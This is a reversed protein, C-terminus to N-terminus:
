KNEVVLFDKGLPNIGQYIIDFFEPGYELYYESFNEIREQLSNNPFLTAKLRAIRDLHVKMKKKEARLMKQEMQHLQYSVKALVAGAAEKLTPDLTVAKNKLREIIQELEKKEETTDWEDTSNATIYERELQLIPKFIDAITFALQQRLKGQPAPIWLASQRLLIQPYFVKYHQFVTKLQLWYAVEAGGGIFTVNPLITDQYLGRLMVNPSFREPHEKLEKLIEERTWRIDTDVVTWVDGNKEIRERLGDNLYFLNISRPHAQIKYNAGLAEIQAAIIPQAHQNLLEDQMVASFSSKLSADDPDLVILGFRGFLEHVFYQTAAGITKHNFYAETAIRQLEDLNKGPPGFARFLQQLLPKLTKTDMRGVAGQQGNGDWTYKEGRFRFTALEELDNDESGMYFVPVFNKGPHQQTLKAALKIAHLIKYIFYLYGTFLNPQHATCVTFTNEQLLLRINAATKSNEPLAAYQKTLTAVLLERNVPYAARQEIADTSGKEDPTFTYFPETGPSTDLYDTVLRSFYGTEDYPVFAFNYDM